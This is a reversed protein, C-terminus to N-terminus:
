PTFEQYTEKLSSEFVDRPVTFSPNGLYAAAVEAEGYLFVLFGIFGHVPM